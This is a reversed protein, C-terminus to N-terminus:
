RTTRGCSTCAPWRSGSGTRSGPWTGRRPSTWRAPRPRRDALGAVVAPRHRRGHHGPRRWTARRAARPQRHRRRGRTATPCCPWARRSASGRPRRTATSAARARRLRDPARRERRGGALEVLPHRTSDAVLFHGAPCRSRRAPSACTPRSPSRRCTRATARAAAHGQGRARGGAGRRAARDRARAGRRRAARRRVGRPRDRGADALGAGRVAELHGAGPRRAGPPAGRVAGRRGGGGPAGGRARVEALAGRRDGRHRPAEGGARRLEDLVHLCNVCCFTWFDLIVITGRLDALTLHQDGTNLWGGKGVLEPARVRARATM